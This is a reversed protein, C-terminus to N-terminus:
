MKLVLIRFIKNRADLKLYGKKYLEYPSIFLPNGAFSSTSYYPSNSEEIPNIPLVQWYKQRAKSLIDVFKYANEGLDGIGYKSPLSFIPLLIGSSREM